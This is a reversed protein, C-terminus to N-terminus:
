SGRGIWVDDPTPLDKGSRKEIGRNTDGICGSIEHYAVDYGMLKAALKLVHRVKDYVTEVRWPPEGEPVHSVPHYLSDSSGERDCPRVTASVAGVRSSCVNCNCVAYYIALVNIM